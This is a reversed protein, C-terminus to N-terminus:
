SQKQRQDNTKRHRARASYKSSKSNLLCSIWVRVSDRCFLRSYCKFRQRFTQSCHNFKWVFFSTNELRAFCPVWGTLNAYAERFKIMAFIWKHLIIERSFREDSWSMGLARTHHSILFLFFRGSVIPIWKDARNTLRVGFLYEMHGDTRRDCAYVFYFTIQFPFSSSLIFQQLPHSSTQRPHAKTNPM